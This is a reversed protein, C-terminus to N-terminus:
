ISIAADICDAVSSITKFNTDDSDVSKLLSAVGWGLPVWGLEETLEFESPFLQLINDPLPKHDPKSLQQQRRQARAQLEEPIANGAALANDIVPDFDVFWSKFLTQAMQELTQNTQRNLEIKNSLTKIHHAIEIQENEPPIPLLVKRLESQKIGKVTSGSARAELQHQVYSSQMACLLFDNNLVGEKGRLTVIRQALAVNSSTLQAVEGLPAESTVVVDGIKPLGRVMWSDYDEEAIFEAPELIRGGKVIKATILPIGHDTKKPTKGRYDIIAEMVNELPLLQWHDPFESM